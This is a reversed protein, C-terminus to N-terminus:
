LNMASFLTAMTLSELEDDKPKSSRTPEREYWLDSCNELVFGVIVYSGFMLEESMSSKNGRGGELYM